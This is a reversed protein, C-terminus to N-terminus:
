GPKKLIEKLRQNLEKKGSLKFAKIVNPWSRAQLITQILFNKNEDSILCEQQQLRYFVYLRLDFLAYEFGKYGNIYADCNKVNNIGLKPLLPLLAMVQLADMMKFHTLLRESFSAVFQEECHKLYSKAVDELALLMTVAPKGTSTGQGISLMALCLKNNKWFSLRKEDLAFVAGLYSLKLQQTHKLACNILRTGIGLRRFKQSVAIRQIRLGKLEAFGRCGAHVTLGQALLHGQPRRKGYYIENSLEPSLGGEASLLMVAIIRINQSAVFLTISPNDLLMKLDSVQTRYHASKLLQFIETLLSGQESLQAQTVLQYQIADSINPTKNKVTKLLFTDELWQELLDQKGWRMPADLTMVDLAQNKFSALFQLEFGQGTGEYGDLTSTYIIRQYCQKLQLLLAIPITAAEDVIICDALPKDLLLQDVAAYRVHSNHQTFRLCQGAAKKSDSTIIFQKSAHEPQSLWRGLLTSKGRGRAAILAVSKANQTFVLDLTRWALQQQESLQNNANILTKDSLTLPKIALLPNAQDCKIVSKSTLKQQLYQIFYHHGQQKDQWINKPDILKQWQENSPRMLLLLGPAKVLGAVRALADIDLGSWADFIVVNFEQGLLQISKNFPVAKLTPFLAAQDSLVLPTSTQSVALAIKHCWAADGACDVLIRQHSVALTEHLQKAWQQPTLETM